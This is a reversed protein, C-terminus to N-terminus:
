WSTVRGVGVPADVGEERIAFVMTRDGREELKMDVRTWDWMMARKLVGSEEIKQRLASMALREPGKETGPPVYYDLVVADVEKYRSNSGSGKWFKLLSGGSSSVDKLRTCYVMIVRKEAKEGYDGFAFPEIIECLLPFITYVFHAELRRPLPSCTYQLEGLSEIFLNVPHLKVTTGPPLAEWDFEHPNKIAPSAGYFSSKPKPGSQSQYQSGPRESM